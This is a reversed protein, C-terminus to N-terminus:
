RAGYRKVAEMFRRASGVPTRPLVGHGLNLVHGTQPPFSEFLAHVARETAEPGALLILPDLNGQLSIAPDILPRVKTLEVRWDLSLCDAGLRQLDELYPACGNMYIIVPAGLDKVSHVIHRIWRGSFREYDAQRLASGWTDFIQVADAGAEIQLRLYEAVGEAIRELLADLLEPEAWRMTLIAEFNRSLVGEVWYCALTWPSGIFGLIPFDSGVRRRVEQITGAVPQGRDLPHPQDLDRWDEWTRVANLVRPGGEDYKLRAGLNELPVLIDNFIIVADSGLVDVPQISLDCAAAPTKCLELFEYRSRIAQYQPLYRGAQRMLWAPVRDIPESRLAALLRRRPTLPTRFATTSRM